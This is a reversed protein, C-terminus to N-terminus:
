TFKLWKDQWKSLKRRKPCHPLSDSPSINPLCLSYTTLPLPKSPVYTSCRPLSQTLPKETAPKFCITAPPTISRPSQSPSPSSSPPQPIASAQSVPQSELLLSKVLIMANACNLISGVYNFNRLQSGMWEYKNMVLTNSITVARNM